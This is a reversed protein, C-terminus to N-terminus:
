RVDDVIDSATTDTAISDKKVEQTEWARSLVSDCDPCRPGYRFEFPGDQIGCHPCEGRQVTEYADDSESESM